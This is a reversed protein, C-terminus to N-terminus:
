GYSILFGYIHLFSLKGRNKEFYMSMEQQFACLREVDARKYGRSMYFDVVSEKETM